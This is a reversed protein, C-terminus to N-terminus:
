RRQERRQQTSPSAPTGPRDLEGYRVSCLSGSWRLSSNAIWNAIWFTVLMM